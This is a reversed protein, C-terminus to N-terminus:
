AVYHSKASPFSPSPNLFLLFGKFFSYIFMNHLAQFFHKLQHQDLRRMLIYKQELMVKKRKDIEM